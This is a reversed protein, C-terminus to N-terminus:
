ERSQVHKKDEYMARDARNIIQELPEETNACVFAIGYSYSISYDLWYTRSIETRMKEMRLNASDQMCRILLVAFEDGGIRAFVDGARLKEQFLSTFRIIFQDGAQHGEEDNIRKLRDLDIYVLSFPTGEQLLAAMKDFLYRRSYIKTLYDVSSQDKLERALETRRQLEEKLLKHEEALYNVKLISYVHLLLRLVFFLLMAMSGALLLPLYNWSIPLICLVSDMLLFVMCFSQFHIFLKVEESHAQNRFVMLPLAFRRKFCDSFCFAALVVSISLIRCYPNQLLLYIPISMFFSQMGIFLMHIAAAFLNLTSYLFSKDTRKKSPVFMRLMEHRFVFAYYIPTPVYAVSWILVFFLLGVITKILKNSKHNSATLYRLSIWGYLLSLLIPLLLGWGFYFKM